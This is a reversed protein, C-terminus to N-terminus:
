RFITDQSCRWRWARSLWSGRGASWDIGGLLDLSPVTDAKQPLSDEATSELQSSSHRLDKIVRGVATRASAVCGELLPIGPHAYSGALYVLGDEQPHLLEFTKGDRM